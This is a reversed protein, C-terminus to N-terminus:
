RLGARRPWAAAVGDHFYDLLTRGDRDPVLCLYLVIGGFIGWIWIGLLVEIITM